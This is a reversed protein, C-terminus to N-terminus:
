EPSETVPNADLYERYEDEMGLNAALVPHNFEEKRRRLDFYLLTTFIYQFPMVLLSALLGGISAVLWAPSTYEPTIGRSIDAIMERVVSVYFPAEIAM